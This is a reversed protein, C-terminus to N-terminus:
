DREIPGVDGISDSTAEAAETMVARADLETEPDFPWWMGYREMEEPFAQIPPVRMKYSVTGSEEDEDVQIRCTLHYLLAKKQNETYKNWRDAGVTIFYKYNYTKDTIVSLVKNAKQVKGPIMGWSPTSKEQMLLCLDQPELHGMPTKTEMQEKIADWLLDQDGQSAKWIDVM